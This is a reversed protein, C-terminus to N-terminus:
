AASALRVETHVQGRVVHGDFFWDLATFEAEAESTADVEFSSREDERGHVWAQVIYEQEM